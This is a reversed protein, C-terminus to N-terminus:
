SRARGIRVVVPGYAGCGSEDDPRGEHPEQCECWVNQDVSHDTHESDGAMGTVSATGPAPTVKTVLEVVCSHSCTPCRLAWRAVGDHSDAASGDRLAQMMDVVHVTYRM